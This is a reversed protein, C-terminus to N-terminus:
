IKFPIVVNMLSDVFGYKLTRVKYLNKGAKVPNFYKPPLLEQGLKTMYGHKGRKKVRLKEGDRTLIIEEYKFPIITDGKANIVGYLNKKVAIFLEADIPYIRDYELPVYFEKEQNCIGWKDAKRYPIFIEQSTFIGCSSFLLLASLSIIIIKM